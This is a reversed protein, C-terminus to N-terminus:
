ESEENELKRALEEDVREQEEQAIQKAYQEDDQVQDERIAREFSENEIRRALDLDAREREARREEDEALLKAYQEDNQVQDYDNVRQSAENQVRQALDYDAREREARKEEDKALQRAIQEDSQVQDYDSGNGDAENQIKLALDLDTYSQSYYRAPNRSASPVLEYLVLYSDQLIEETWRDNRPLGDEAELELEVDEEGMDDWKRWGNVDYTFSVYHGRGIESGIHSVVSRLKATYEAPTQSQRVYDNFNLTLPLSIPTRNKQLNNGYRALAFPLTVVNFSGRQYRSQGLTSPTYEPILTRHRWADVVEQQTNSGIRRVELEEGFFVHQLLTEFRTEEDLLPLWILREGAQRQDGHDRRANHFLEEHLPVLPADLNEVLASFFHTADEQERGSPFGLTVMASRVEEVDERSVATGHRVGNVVNRLADRLIETQGNSNGNPASLLADWADWTVFCATITAAIYCSNRAHGLNKYKFPDHFDIEPVPQVARPDDGEM